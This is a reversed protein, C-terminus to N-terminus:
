STFFRGAICSVGTQNRWSSGQRLSLSGMGTNKSKGLPESPLSNVQLIPSRSKIGPNPLDGSPPCPLGSWYKNHTGQHSLCYLIQLDAQLAPSRPEIGQRSSALRLHFRLSTQCPLLTEKLNFIEMTREQHSLHYLIQRCHLFGSNLKQIPFIGQLLSHCVVGSNNGPSNWPCLLRTPQMCDMPNCLTPCM